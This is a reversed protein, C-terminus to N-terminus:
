CDEKINALEFTTFVWLKIALQMVIEFRMVKQNDLEIIVNRCTKKGKPEGLGIAQLRVFQNMWAVFRTEVAVEARGRTPTFSVQTDMHLFKMSTVLWKLTLPASFSEWVPIWVLYTTYVM